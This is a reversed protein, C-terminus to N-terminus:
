RQLLSSTILRRLLKSKHPEDCIAADVPDREAHPEDIHVAAGVAAMRRIKAIKKSSKGAASRRAVAADVETTLEDISKRCQVRAELDAVLCGPKAAPFKTEAAYMPTPSDAEDASVVCVDSVVARDEIASCKIPTDTQLDSDDGLALAKSRKASGSTPTIAHGGGAMDAHGVNLDPMCSLGKDQLVVRALLQVM